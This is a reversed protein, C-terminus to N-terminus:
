KEMEQKPINIWKWEISTRDQNTSRAHLTWYTCNTEDSAEEKKAHKIGAFTNFYISQTAYKKIKESKRWRGYKKENKNENAQKTRKLVENEDANRNKKEEPRRHASEYM